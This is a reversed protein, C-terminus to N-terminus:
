NIQIEDSFCLKYDEGQQKKTTGLSATYIGANAANGNKVNNTIKYSINVTWTKLSLMGILCIM